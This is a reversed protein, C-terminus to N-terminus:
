ARHGFTKARLCVPPAIENLTNPKRSSKFIKENANQGIEESIPCLGGSVDVLWISGLADPGGSLPQQLIQNFKVYNLTLLCTERLSLFTVSRKPPGVPSVEGVDNGM